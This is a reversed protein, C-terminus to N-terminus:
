PVTYRRRLRAYYFGDMGQQEPLIQRGITAKEGWTADILWEEAEPTAQLFAVLRESNEAPLLSCTAYVLVGGPRLLPWLATLLASQLQQLKQVDSLQRHIKIDPHRRIVGTGSCPADLLIADFLQGDWWTDPLTADAVAVSANVGLRQCNDNVLAIRAAEKDIAVLAALGPERAYIHTTKGGPAACADLVRQGPALALLDVALQAAADQVAFWGEAFGPLTQVAQPQALQIGDAAFECATAAIGRQTLEDLYAARELELRNVRLTMPPRQNNATLIGRWENPWAHQIADILWRPHSYQTIPEANLQELLQLQQRQASRLVANLLGTAWPKGVRKAGEVTEAIAAHPAVRMFFLQYLGVLLLAQLDSDKAKLPKPLLLRVLASLRWYWRLVGYCMEQVLSQDTIPLQQQLADDLSRGRTLVQDIIRAAVVRTTM